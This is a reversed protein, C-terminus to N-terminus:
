ADWERKWKLGGRPKRGLLMRWGLVTLAGSAFGMLFTEM